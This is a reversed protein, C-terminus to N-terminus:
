EDELDQFSDLFNLCFNLHTEHLTGQKTLGFLIRKEQNMHSCLGLDVYLGLSNGHCGLGARLTKKM